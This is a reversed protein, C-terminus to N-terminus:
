SVGNYCNTNLVHTIKFVSPLMWFICFLASKWKWFTLFSVGLKVQAINMPEKCSNQYLIFKQFFHTMLRAEPIWVCNKGLIVGPTTKIKKITYKWPYNPNILQMLANSSNTEINALSQPFICKKLKWPFPQLSNVPHIGPLFFHQLRM